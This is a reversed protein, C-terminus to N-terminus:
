WLIVVIMNSVDTYTFTSLVFNSENSFKGGANKFETYNTYPAPIDEICAFTRGDLDKPCILNQDKWNDVEIIQSCQSSNGMSDTFTWTITTFGVYYNEELTKGDSRTPVGIITGDCYDDYSPVILGATVLEQYSVSDEAPSLEGVQAFINHLSECPFHPPITDMVNVNQQWIKPTVSFPSKFTWTIVTTGRPYSEDM